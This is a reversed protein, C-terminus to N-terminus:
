KYKTNTWSIWWIEGDMLWTLYWCIKYLKDDNWFTKQSYIKSFDNQFVCELIYIVYYRESLKNWINQKPFRKGFYIEHIKFFINQFYEPFLLLFTMKLFSLFIKELISPTCAFITQHLFFSGIHKSPIKLGRPEYPAVLFKLKM